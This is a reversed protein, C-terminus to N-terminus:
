PEFRRVTLTDVIQWARQIETRRNEIARTAEYDKRLSEVARRADKVSAYDKDFHYQWWVPGDLQVVRATKLIPNWEITFVYATVQREVKQPESTGCGNLILGVASVLLMCFLLISKM